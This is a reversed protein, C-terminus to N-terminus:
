ITLNEYAFFNSYHDIDNIFFLNEFDIDQLNKM